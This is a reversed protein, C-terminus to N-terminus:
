RLGPRHRSLSRAAAQPVKAQEALHAPAAHADDILGLLQRQAPPHRQLDEREGGREVGLLELAELILRLRRSRQVVRVDHRDVRHAAVVADVIIGHLEDVALGEGLEDGPEPRM